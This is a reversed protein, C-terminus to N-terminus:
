RFTGSLRYTSDMRPDRFGAKNLEKEIQKAKETQQLDIALLRRVPNFDFVRISQKDLMAASEKWVLEAAEAQQNAMMATGLLEASKALDVLRQSTPESEKLIEQMLAYTAKANALAVVFDNAHLARL